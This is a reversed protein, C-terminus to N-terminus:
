GHKQQNENGKGITNHHELEIAMFVLAILEYRNKIAECADMDKVSDDMCIQCAQTVEVFVVVRLM